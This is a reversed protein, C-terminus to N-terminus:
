EASPSCTGRKSQHQDTRSKQASRESLSEGVVETGESGFQERVSGHVSEKHPDREEPRDGHKEVTGTTRQNSRVAGALAKGISRVPMENDNVAPAIPSEIQHNTRVM